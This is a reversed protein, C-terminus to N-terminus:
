GGFMNPPLNLPGALNAMEQQMKEKVKILADNVAAKLLEELFVTEENLVESGLEVKEVVLSGNVHVKVMDAGATGCAKIDKMKEQAEAMKEQINQFNKVLDFPNMM